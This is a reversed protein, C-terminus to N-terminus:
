AHELKALTREALIGAIALSSTAAPSPANQVHLVRASEAFLFDDALTGDVHLAQARIGAPAPLLHERRVGPLFRRVARAVLRPLLDRSVETAGARWHKRALRWFPGSALVDRVDGLDFQTRRYGERALALVANPGVWVSGDPRRNVHVGLFPLRPDPVPYILGRCRDAVEPALAFYSGRFPVIAIGDTGAGSARALRDSHLGACTVAVRAEVTGRDTTARVGSSTEELASVRCAVAVTAGGQELEHELARAVLGFDVLGSEPVHLGSTGAVHPEVERLDSASLLRLGALGNARARRELEELKVLERDDTAVILKGTIEYPVQQEDCFDLLLRRGETCLRAKLSGPAYYVGAHLVCSNRGTQHLAPAAEKELVLVAWDPRRRQLERATALGLIGAGVVVADVREPLDAAPRDRPTEGQLGTTAVREGQGQDPAADLQL